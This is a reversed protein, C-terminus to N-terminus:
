FTAKKWGLYRSISERQHLPYIQKLSKWSSTGAVKIEIQIALWFLLDALLFCGQPKIFLFDGENWKLSFFAFGQKGEAAVWIECEFSAQYKM